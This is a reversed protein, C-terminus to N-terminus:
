SKVADDALQDDAPKEDAKARRGKRAPPDDALPAPPADPQKVEEQASIAPTTLPQPTDYAQTPKISVVDMGEYRECSAHCFEGSLEVDTESVGEPLEIEVSSLAHVDVETVLEGQPHKARIRTRPHRTSKPVEVLITRTM